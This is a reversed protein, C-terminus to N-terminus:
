KNKTQKSKQKNYAAVENEVATNCFGSLTINGSNEVIIERVKELTAKHIRVSENKRIGRM